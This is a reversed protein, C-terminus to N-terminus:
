RLELHRFYSICTNRCLSKARCLSEAGVTFSNSGQEQFLRTKDPDQDPDANIINPTDDPDERFSHPGRTVRCNRSHKNDVTLNNTICNM